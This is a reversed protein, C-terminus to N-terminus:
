APILRSQATFMYVWKMDVILVADDGEVSPKGARSAVYNYDRRKGFCSPVVVRNSKGVGSGPELNEVAVNVVIPHVRNDGAVAAAHICVPGAQM